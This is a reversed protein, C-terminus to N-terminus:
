EAARWKMWEIVTRCPRCYYQSVSLQSGFGSFQETEM